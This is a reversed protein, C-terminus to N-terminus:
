ETAWARTVDGSISTFSKAETFGMSFTSGEVGM